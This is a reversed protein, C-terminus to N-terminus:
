HLIKRLKFKYYLLKQRVIFGHEHINKCNLLKTSSTTQFSFAIFNDRFRVALKTYMELNICKIDELQSKLSSITAQKEQVDQELNQINLEM